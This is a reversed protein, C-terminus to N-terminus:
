YLYEELRWYGDATRCNERLLRKGLYFNFFPKTFRLAQSIKDLKLNLVYEKYWNPNWGCISRMDKLSARAETIYEDSFVSSRNSNQYRFGGLPSSIGYLDASLFFRAWLDFDGALTFESRIRAGNRLWLSRRWFTSEQQLTGRGIGCGPPMYYGDLFAERCFGFFLSYGAYFGNWDWYTPILTTLWEVEAVQSFISAVLNLTFPFYIDDSNIWAMVEGTAHSFGKNIADYQGEDPESCWFHLKDEYKEIIKQSGDTSGGDIIIYELYPYEQNLISNITKELFEAQNYSPTVISIKPLKKSM